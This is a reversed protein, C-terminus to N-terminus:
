STWNARGGDDNVLHRIERDWGSSRIRDLRYRILLFLLTACAIVAVWTGVGTLVADRTATAQTAPPSTMKGTDDVWIQLQQGADMPRPVDVTGTHEVAGVRWTVKATVDLAYPKVATVTDSVVTAPIEHSTSPQAQLARSRADHVETAMAGAIPIALLVAALLVALVVVEARDSSRILPNRGFVRFVWWRKEAPMDTGM